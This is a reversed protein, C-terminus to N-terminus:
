TTSNPSPLPQDEGEIRDSRFFHPHNTLQLASGILFNWRGPGLLTLHQSTVGSQRKSLGEALDGHPDIVGVGHGMAIDQVIMNRLLTTKGSGTKGVVYVHQRRDATSIGFPVPKGWGEREGLIIDPEQNMTGSGTAVGVLRCLGGTSARVLPEAIAPLQAQLLGALYNAVPKSIRVPLIM